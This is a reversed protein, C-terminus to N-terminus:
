DEKYESIYQVADAGILEEYVKYINYKIYQRSKIEEETLGRKIEASIDKKNFESYDNSLKSWQKYINTINFGQQLYKKLTLRKELNWEKKNKKM